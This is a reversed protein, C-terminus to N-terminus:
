LEAHKGHDRIDDPEVLIRLKNMLAATSLRADPSAAWCLQMVEWLDDTIAPGPYQKWKPRTVPKQQLIMGVVAGDIKV